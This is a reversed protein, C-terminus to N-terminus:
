TTLSQMRVLGEGDGHHGRSLVGSEQTTWWGGPERADEGEEDREARPSVVYRVPPIRPSPDSRPKRVVYENEAVVEANVRREAVSGRSRTWGERCQRGFM